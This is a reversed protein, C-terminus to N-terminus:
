SHWEEEVVEKFCDVILLLRGLALDSHPWGEDLVLPRLMRLVPELAEFKGGIFKTYPDYRRTQKLSEISRFLRDVFWPGFQAATQISLYSEPNRKFPGESAGEMIHDFLWAARRMDALKGSAVHHLMVARFGGLTDLANLEDVPKDRDAPSLGCRFVGEERDGISSEVDYEAESLYEAFLELQLEIHAKLDDRLRQFESPAYYEIWDTESVGPLNHYAHVFLLETATNPPREANTAM